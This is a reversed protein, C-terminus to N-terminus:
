LKKGWSVECVCKVEASVFFQANWEFNLNKQHIKSNIADTFINQFLAFNASIKKQIPLPISTPFPHCIHDTWAELIAKMKCIVRAYQFIFYIFWCFLCNNLLIIRRLSVSIFNTHECLPSCLECQFRYVNHTRETNISPM